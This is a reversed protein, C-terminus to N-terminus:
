PQIRVNFQRLLEKVNEVSSSLRSPRVAAGTGALEWILDAADYAARPRGLREANAARERFLRGDEAMWHAMAELLELPELTLDGAGERVVLQANGTEQGPIVQMLFIPLGCAFSETVILGGAKSIVCDAAHLFDPMTKVFNYLHAPVHWETQEWKEYLENNGGAVAVIQYAFGAHNLVHTFRELGEVRKSGVALVTFLDPDWGLDIRAQAKSAPADALAPNVPLGTIQVREPPIEHKVALDAAIQTPTLCLDVGKYFWMRQLSVLDTIVTAMPTDDGTIRRYMDLPSQYTPFTVVVVDPEHERMLRAILDYTMVVYAMETVNTTMAMDSMRYGLKYFEPWESALKDYDSESKRLVAPAKPDDLPNAITVRAAEGYSLEFARALALATSRHGFGADATLILINRTEM